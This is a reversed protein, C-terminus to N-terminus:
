MNGYKSFDINNFVFEKRPAVKIGMLDCLLEIGESSYEIEDM